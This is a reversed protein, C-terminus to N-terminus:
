LFIGAFGLSKLRGGWTKSEHFFAAQVWYILMSMLLIGFAWNGLFNETNIIM